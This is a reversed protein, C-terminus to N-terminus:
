MLSDGAEDAKKKEDEPALEFLSAIGAEDADTIAESLEKIAIKAADSCVGNKEYYHVWAISGRFKPIGLPLPTGM